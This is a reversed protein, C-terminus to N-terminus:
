VIQRYHNRIHSQTGWVPEWTTDVSKRKVDMVKFGNYFSDKKSFNFASGTLKSFIFGMESPQVVSKNDYSVAYVPTGEDNLSFSLKVKGLSDLYEKRDPNHEQRVHDDQTCAKGLLGVA